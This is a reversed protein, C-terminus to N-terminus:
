RNSTSTTALAKIRKILALAEDREQTVKATAAWWAEVYAPPTTDKTPIRNASIWRIEQGTHTRARHDNSHGVPKLCGIMQHDASVREPCETDADRDAIHQHIGSVAAERTPFV